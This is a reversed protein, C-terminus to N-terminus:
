VKPFTTNDLWAEAEKKTYFVHTKVLPAGIAELLYKQGVKDDHHWATNVSPFVKKGQKELSLTLQRAFLIGRYDEQHWHWMLGECDELQQVIDSDYCNVLKYPIANEDCYKKWKGGFGREDDHLALKM